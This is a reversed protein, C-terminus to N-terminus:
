LSEIMSRNVVSSITCIYFSHRLNGVPDLIGPCLSQITGSYDFTGLQIGLMVNVKM